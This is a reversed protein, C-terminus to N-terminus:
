ISLKGVVLDISLQHPFPFCTPWPVSALVINLFLSFHTIVVRVARGMKRVQWRGNRTREQHGEGDIRGM